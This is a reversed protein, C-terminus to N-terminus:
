GRALRELEFRVTEIDKPTPNILKRALEGLRPGLRDRQASFSVPANM